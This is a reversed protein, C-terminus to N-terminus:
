IAGIKMYTEAVSAGNAILDRTTDENRMIQTCRALVQDAIEAPIVAVGDIDGFVLDGPRISVGDIEVPVDWETIETRGKSTTPLHGRSIVPFDMELVQKTDRLMGNIIAGVGGHARVGTSMLEGWVAGDFDDEKTTLLYVDGPKVQDVSICQNVLANEPMTDVREAKVPYAYGFVYTDPRVPVFASKLSQNRCDFYDLVDCVLGSYLSRGLEALQDQNMRM